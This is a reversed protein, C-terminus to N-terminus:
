VRLVPGLEDLVSAANLELDPAIISQPVQQEVPRTVAVQAPPAQHQRKKWLFDFFGM